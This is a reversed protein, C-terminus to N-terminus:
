DAIELLGGTCKSQVSISSDPEIRIEASDASRQMPLARDSWWQQDIDPRSPLVGVGIRLYFPPVLDKIIHGGPPPFWTLQVPDSNVPLPFEIRLKMTHFSRLKYIRPTPRHPPDGDPIRDEFSVRIHKKSYSEVM